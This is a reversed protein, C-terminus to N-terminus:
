KGLMYIFSIGIKTPGFYHKGGDKTEVEECTACAYTDYKMYAYGLGISWELRFQPTLFWHYGYSVGLGYGNGKRRRNDNLEPYIEFPLKINAWDYNLYLAHAGFFHRDFEESLWYRFEPQILFHKLKMNYSKEWANINIPLDLTVKNAIRFEAGVNVTALFDYIINTKIAIGSKDLPNPNQANVSILSLLFTFLFLTLKNM